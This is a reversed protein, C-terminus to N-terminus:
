ETVKPVRKKHHDGEDHGPKRRRLGCIKCRSSSPKEREQRKKVENELTKADVVITKNKRKRPKQM